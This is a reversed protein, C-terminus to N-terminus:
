HAFQTEVTVVEAKFISAEEVHIKCNEISVEDGVHPARGLQKEVLLAFTEDRAHPLQFSFQENFDKILMDGPITKKFFAYKKQMTHEKVESLFLEEFLDQKQVIGVGIGHPNLILASSTKEKNFLELLDLASSSSSISSLPELLLNSPKILGIINEKTKRFALLFPTQPYKKWIKHFNTCSSPVTPFSSVREMLHSVPKDKLLLIKHITSEENEELLHEEVMKKVEERTFLLNKKLSTKKQLIKELYSFLKQILFSFPKLVQATLYLIPSGLRSLHDAYLQAAFMQILEGFLLVFPIHFLPAINPDNCYSQFFQRSCESSIMLTINVSILTTSFLLSPNKLLAFLLLSRKDKKSVDYQLRIKNCAICSLEQMSYFSMVGTWFITSLLWFLAEHTM